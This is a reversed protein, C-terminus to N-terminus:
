RLEPISVKVACVLKVRVISAVHEVVLNVPQSRLPYLKVLLTRPSAIDYVIPGAYSSTLKIM